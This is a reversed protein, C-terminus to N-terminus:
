KMCINTATNAPIPTATFTEQVLILPTNKFNNEFDVDWIWSVDRGDPIRDNLLILLHKARLKNITALSQNFSAPNKSLFIQISKNNFKIVEQRGFAPHFNKLSKKIKENSIGLSDSTLVAAHINYKNYLGPLPYFNFAEMDPVPRKLLCKPCFWNGLHSFTINKYDLKETCRPCYTSDSAHEFTNHGSTKVGFYLTKNRAKEGLYAIQPDDANLILKTKKSELNKLHEQYKEFEKYRFNYDRRPKAKYKLISDLNFLVVISPHPYVEFFKKGQELKKIEPNHTFGNNELLKSIEEGRITGIWSSLRRRNAPHAGANYKRFLKGVLVEALRRGEENPVILPADIAIFADKDKIENKIFNIIDEDSFAITSSLYEAKEKDGKLIAIGTGNKTSWALDLGVFYM